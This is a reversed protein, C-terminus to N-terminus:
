NAKLGVGRIRSAQETPIQSSRRLDAARRAIEDTTPASALVEEIAEQRQAENRLRLEVDALNFWWSRRTAEHDIRGIADLYLREADKWKARLAFAEARAAIRVANARGDSDATEDRSLILDLSAEADQRSRERLLRAAVLPAVTGVPLVSSWEAFKLSRDAALDAVIWRVVEEGPLLYRRAQPDDAFKPHTEPALETRVALQLAQRYLPFAVEKRGARLLKRAAWTLSVPDRSLALGRTSDGGSAEVIRAKALRAPAYIPSAGLAGDLLLHVEDGRESAQSSRGLYVAWNTLHRPTSRWWSPSPPGVWEPLPIPRGNVFEAEKGLLRNAVISASRAEWTWSWSVACGLVGMLLSAFALPPWGLWLPMEWCEPGQAFSPTALAPGRSPKRDVPRKKAASRESAGRTRASPRHAALVDEVSPLDVSAGTSSWEAPPPLSRGTSEAALSTARNRRRSTSRSEPEVVELSQPEVKPPSAQIETDLTSATFGPPEPDAQEELATTITELCEAPAVWETGATFRTPDEDVVPVVETAVGEEPGTQRDFWSPNWASIRADVSPEVPEDVTDVQRAPVDAAPPTLEAEILTAEVRPRPETELDRLLQGAPVSSSSSTARWPTPQAVPPRPLAAEKLPAPEPRTARPVAQPIPRDINIPAPRVSSMNADLSSRPTKPPSASRLKEGAARWRDEWRQRERLASAPQEIRPGRDIRASPVEAAISPGVPEPAQMPEQTPYASWDPAALKSAHLTLCFHGIRIPTDFPLLRIGNVPRGDLQVSDAVVPEIQWIGGRRRLRCVEGALDPDNLRVECFSARGVRVHPWPVDVVRIPGSASDQIHLCSSEPM